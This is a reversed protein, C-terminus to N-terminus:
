PEPHRAMGLASRVTPLVEGVVRNALFGFYRIMRFGHEPIHQLFRRILEIQSVNETEYRGTHHDLYRFSLTSEGRYHALRAGSIPPRKLYR